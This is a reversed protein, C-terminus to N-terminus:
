SYGRRMLEGRVDLALRFIEADNYLSFTERPWPEIIGSVKVAPCFECGADLCNACDPYDPM